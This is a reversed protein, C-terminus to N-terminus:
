KLKVTSMEFFQKKAPESNMTQHILEFTYKLSVDSEESNKRYKTGKVKVFGKWLFETYIHENQCHSRQHFNLYKPKRKIGSEQECIESLQDLLKVREIESIINEVIDKCKLDPNFTCGSRLSLETLGCDVIQNLCVKIDNLIVSPQSHVHTRNVQHLRYTKISSFICDYYDDFQKYNFVRGHDTCLKVLFKMVFERSREENYVDGKIATKFIRYYTTGAINKGEVPKEKYKRAILKLKIGLATDWAKKDAVTIHSTEDSWDDISLCTYINQPDAM